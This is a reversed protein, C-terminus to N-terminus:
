CHHAQNIPEIQDNLEVASYQVRRRFKKTKISAFFGLIYKFKQDNIQKEVGDLHLSIPM